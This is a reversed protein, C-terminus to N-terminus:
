FDQTHPYNESPSSTGEGTWPPLYCKAKRETTPLSPLAPSVTGYQSPYKPPARPFITGIHVPGPSSPASFMQRGARLSQWDSGAFRCKCEGSAGLPSPTSPCPHWILSMIEWGVHLHDARGGQELCRRGRFDGASRIQLSTVQYPVFLQASFYSQHLTSLSTLKTGDYVSEHLCFTFAM